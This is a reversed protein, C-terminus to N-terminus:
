SEGEADEAPFSSGQSYEKLDMRLCTYAIQLRWWDLPKADAVIEIGYTQGGMDNGAQYRVEAAYSPDSAPIITAPNGPPTTRLKRYDNLFLATDFALRSTAQIRHGLEYAIVEESEFGENGNTTILVTGPALFALAPIAAAPVATSQVRINHDAQSPTRVAKSVAAWVTNEHNPTWSLRANPQVEYGTYDNHEFKAGVALRLLHDILTIEDQIFGSALGDSRSAPNFTFTTSNDVEDRLARYGAGWTVHHREAAQFHYQMELDLTHRHDGLLRDNSKTLDYYAQLMFESDPGTTRTLRTLLNAGRVNSPNDITSSYPAAPTPITTAADAYGHYADGQVTFAYPTAPDSDVRFGSRWQYWDDNAKAGSERGLDDRYFSKAYVRYATHDNISGGHRGGGFGLEETGTGATLLTGQTDRTHKTIINIVGNVANAGWLTAGPGRIVEIRDIDEMMTDQANWLTGSFLPSYLTRGDMLVLLKNASFANFGRSSIAWKNADVQAVQLGPAMRLAEPINTAGSRKIDEQSIVYIASAATALPEARKSVSTVEAELLQELSLETIKGHKALAPLPMALLMAALLTATRYRAPRHNPM